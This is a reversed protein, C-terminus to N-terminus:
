ASAHDEGADGAHPTGTGGANGQPSADADFGHALMGFVEDLLEPFSRGKSYYPNKVIETVACVASTGANLLVHIQLESLRNGCYDSVAKSVREFVGLLGAFEEQNMHMSLHEGLTAAVYISQQEDPTLTLDHAVRRLMETVPLGPESAEILDVTKDAFRTIYHVFAAERHQFYNHFTRSSVDAREAISAITTGESGEVLM